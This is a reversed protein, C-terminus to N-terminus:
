RDSGTLEDVYRCLKILDDKANKKYRIHEQRIFSKIVKKHNKFFRLFSSRNPCPILKNEHIICLVTKQKSYNGYPNVPNYNKVFQKTHKLVFLFDGNFVLEYYGSEGISKRVKQLNIFTHDDFVLSDIIANEANFVETEGQSNIVQFMIIDKEIDYQVPIGSFTRGHSYVVAEKWQENIFFPHGSAKRNWNSYKEGQFIFDDMGYIEEAYERIEKKCLGSKFDQSNIPVCIMHILVLVFILQQPKFHDKYMRYHFNLVLKHITFTSFYSSHCPYYYVLFFLIVNVCSFM